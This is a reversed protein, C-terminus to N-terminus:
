WGGWWQDIETRHDVVVGTAYANKDDPMPFTSVTMVSPVGLTDWTLHWLLCQDNRSPRPNANRKQELTYFIVGQRPDRAAIEITSAAPVWGVWTDDNYYLARPHNLNIM